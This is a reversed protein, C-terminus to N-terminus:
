TAQAEAPEIRGTLTRRQPGRLHVARSGDSRGDRHPWRCARPKDRVRRRGSSGSRVSVATTWTSAARVTATRSVRRMSIEGRARQCGVAIPLGASIVEAAPMLLRCIQDATDGGHTREGRCARATPGGM